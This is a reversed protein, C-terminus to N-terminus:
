AGDPAVPPAAGGPSADLAFSAPGVSPDDPVVSLVREDFFPEGNLTCTAAFPLTYRGARRFDSFRAGLTGSGIGPISVPGRAEVLRLSRDFYLHYPDEPAEACHARLGRAAGPPLAGAPLETWSMERLADLSTIAIWRAVTAFCADRAPEESLLASGLYTRVTEGDSVYHQDEASTRLTFRLRDPGLFAIHWRWTGPFGYYVDAESERSFRALPGGRARIAADVLRAPPALAACGALALAM